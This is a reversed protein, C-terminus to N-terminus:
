AHKKRFWDTTIKLGQSLTLSPKWGMVKELYASTLASRMQEGPKGPGHKEEQKSGLLDRLTLFLTNVDTEVGTGINFIGTMKEELAMLNAKVVDVVCVYDRTQLGEGNIVATQGGLLRDCFISVVGAEGEANQRPGYINAYRLFTTQFGQLRSYYLFFKEGALKNIGYPNVPNAPHNEDAPYYSQEGYVAGGSSAFIVKKLAANKSCEMLNIIGGVNVALDFQPDEVSKRVDIQAAHHNLIDPKEEEFIKKLDPSLIDAQYFKARRNVNEKKGTCLNDVIVVQHGAELYADAVQSGIFGAGGTVLIKM